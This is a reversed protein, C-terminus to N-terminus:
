KSSNFSYSFVESIGLKFDFKGICRCVMVLDLEKVILSGVCRNGVAYM